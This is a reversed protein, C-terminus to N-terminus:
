DDDNEEEDDTQEPKQKKHYAFLADELRVMDSSLLSENTYKTKRIFDEAVQLVGRAYALEEAAMRLLQLGADQDLVLPRSPGVVLEPMADISVAEIGHEKRVHRAQIGNYCVLVGNSDHALKVASRTKGFQRSLTLAQIIGDLRYRM